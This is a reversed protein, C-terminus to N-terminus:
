KYQKKGFRKCLRNDVRVRIRMDAYDNLGEGVAKENKILSNAFNELLHRANLNNKTHEKVTIKFEFLM